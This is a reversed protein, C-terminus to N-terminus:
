KFRGCEIGCFLDNRYQDRAIVESEGVRRLEWQAGGPSRTLTFRIENGLRVEISGDPNEHDSWPALMPM